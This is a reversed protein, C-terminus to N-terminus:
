IYSKTIMRIEVIDRATDYDPNNALFALIDAENQTIQYKQCIEEFQEEYLRKMKQGGALIKTSNYTISGGRSNNTRNLVTEEPVIKCIYLSLTM